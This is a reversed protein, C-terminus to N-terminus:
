ALLASEEQQKIWPWHSLSAARKASAHRGDDQKDDTASDDPRGGAHRRATGTLLQSMRPLAAYSGQAAEAVVDVVSARQQAFSAASSLLREPLPSICFCPHRLADAASIRFMPNLELLRSLLDLCDPTADPVLSSLGEGPQPIFSIKHWDPLDAGICAEAFSSTVASPAGGAIMQSNADKSIPPAAFTHPTLPVTFDKSMPMSPPQTLPRLWSEASPTGLVRFLLNMQDIDGTGPFLTSHPGAGVLMEGFVCGAGWMDIKGSYRRAGFLLEPARYWRTAVEHTLDRAPLMRTALGFDALKLVEEENGTPLPSSSSLHDGGGEEDDDHPRSDRGAGDADVCLSSAAPKTSKRCAAAAARRILLNSPKVDRHIIQRRHCAELALLLMWMYRKAQALPMRYYPTYSALVKSMDTDCMETVLMVAAGHPFVDHLEIIHPHGKLLQLSRMEGLVPRPLGEQTRVVPIRKIAVVDGTQKDIARLVTGFCGEGLKDTIVYGNM